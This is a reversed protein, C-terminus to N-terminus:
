YGENLRSFVEWAVRYDEELDPRFFPAKYEVTRETPAGPCSPSVRRAKVDHPKASLMILTDIRCVLLRTLPITFRNWVEKQFQTMMSKLTLVLIRKGRGRRVLDMAVKHGLHIHEDAPPIQRLQTEIFQRSKEFGPTLDQEFRIEAPTLIYGGDDSADARRVIWECDRIVVRTGPAYLASM